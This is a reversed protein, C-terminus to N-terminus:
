RRISVITTYHKETDFESEKQHIRKQCDVVMWPKGNYLVICGRSIEDIDDDTELSITNKDYMFVNAQPNAQNYKPSVEKAYFVGNSKNKLIWQSADGVSVSEDRVWYYCEEYNNRRSHFLDVNGM